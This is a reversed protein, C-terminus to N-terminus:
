STSKKTILYGSIILFGEVATHSLSAQKNSFRMLIDNEILGTLAYSHTIIVSLAFFLRLFDLNNDHSIKGPTTASNNNM